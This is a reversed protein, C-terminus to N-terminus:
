RPREVDLDYECLDRRLEFRAFFYILLGHGRNVVVPVDLSKTSCTLGDPGIKGLADWRTVCPRTIASQSAHVLVVWGLDGDTPVEKM